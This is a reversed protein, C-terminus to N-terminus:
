MALCSMIGVRRAYRIRGRMLGEMAAVFLRVWPQPRRTLTVGLALRRAVGKVKSVAAARGDENEVVESQSIGLLSNYEQMQKFGDADTKGKANAM